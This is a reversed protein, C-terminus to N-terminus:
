LQSQIETIERASVGEVITRNIMPHDQDAPGFDSDPHFAIVTMSSSETRFAHEGDEYITFVTGPSLPIEEQGDRCYGFGDFVVGIRLSPHTHLTQDINSPFYLQNLCADGKRVPSILLSDSCGDIYALRGQEEVPGGLQFFSKQQCKEIIVAKGKGTLKLWSSVSGYMGSKLSFSGSSCEVQVSGEYVFFFFSSDQEDLELFPGSFCHLKSHFNNEEFDKLLGNKPTFSQFNKM